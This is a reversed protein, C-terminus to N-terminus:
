WGTVVVSTSELVEEQSHRKRRVKNERSGGVYGKKTVKLAEKTTTHGAGERQQLTNLRHWHGFNSTDNRSMYTWRFRKNKNIYSVKETVTLADCRKKDFTTETLRKSWFGGRTYFRQRYGPTRKSSRSERVRGKRVRYPPRKVTSGLHLLLEEGVTRRDRGQDGREKGWRIVFLVFMFLIFWQRM